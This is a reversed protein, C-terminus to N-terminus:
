ATLLQTKRRLRAERWLLLGIFVGLLVVTLAGGARMINMWNKTYMGSYEDWHYCMMLLQDFTDGIKGQGAEILAMRFTKDSYEVGYLYRSVKGEPTLVILMSPHAYENKGEVKQYKFGVEEALKAIHAESGTLFHFGAAAGPRGYMETYNARKEQGLQWRETPDISVYIVDYDKGIDLDVKLATTVLAGSVVDCIQPCRFYGMQLIVPRRNNFFSDLTVNRGTSDVFQLDMRIPMGLRDEIAVNETNKRFKEPVPEYRDAVPPESTSSRKQEGDARVIGSAGVVITAALLATRAQQLLRCTM